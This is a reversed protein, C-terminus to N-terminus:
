FFDGDDIMLFDQEGNCLLGLSEDVLRSLITCFAFIREHENMRCIEHSFTLLGLVSSPSPSSPFSSSLPRRFVGFSSLDTRDKLKEDQNAPFSLLLPRNSASGSGFGRTHRPSSLQVRIAKRTFKGRASLCAFGTREFLHHTLHFAFNPFARKSKEPHPLKTSLEPSM